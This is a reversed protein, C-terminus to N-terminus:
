ADKENPNKPDAWPIERGDGDIRIFNEAKNFGGRFYETGGDVFIEGCECRVWDHQSVSEITDGCLACKARNRSKRNM